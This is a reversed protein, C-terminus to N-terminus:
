TSIWVSTPPRGGHGPGHRREVAHHGGLAHGAGVVHDDPGLGRGDVLEALHHDPRMWSISPMVRVTVQGTTLRQAGTSRRGAATARAPRHEASPARRGAPRRDPREASLGWDALAEDGHQGPIPRRGGSPARPARSGRRRPRSSWAPWRPSPAGPGTTRITPRRPWAVAGSRRLRRHRRLGEGVRGPDPHRLARRVAGEHGALRGPGDPRAPGRGGPGAAPDARRLVPARHGRRAMFGGDSTEYVEYFHAGTDLLNTGREDQWIGAPRLTYTMTMLAAAGDVM